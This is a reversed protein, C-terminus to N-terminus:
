IEETTKKIATPDYKMDIHAYISRSIRMVWFFSVAFSFFLLAFAQNMNWKLILMTFGVAFLCLWGTWIYSIFMAGFYYGPEPEFNNNCVECHSYMNLPKSFNFPKKFLDGQRCQPCKMKFASQMKNMIRQIVIM